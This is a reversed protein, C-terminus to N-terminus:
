FPVESNDTLLVFENMKVLHEAYYDKLSFGFLEKWYKELKKMQVVPPTLYSKPKYTRVFYIIDDMEVSFSDVGNMQQLQVDLKVGKDNFWSRHVDSLWNKDGFREFCEKPFVSLYEDILCEKSDYWEAEEKLNKWLKALQYANTIHTLHYDFLEWEEIWFPIEHALYKLHSVSYILNAKCIEYDCRNLVVKRATRRAFDVYDETTSGQHKKLHRASNKGIKVM